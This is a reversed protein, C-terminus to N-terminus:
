DKEDDAEFEKVWWPRSGLLMHGSVVVGDRM